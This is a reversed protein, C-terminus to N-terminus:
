PLKSINSFDPASTDLMVETEVGVEGVRGLATFTVWEDAVVDFTLQGGIVWRESNNPVPTPPLYAESLSRPQFLLVDSGLSPRSLLTARIVAMQDDRERIAKERSAPLPHGSEDNPSHLWFTVRMNYTTRYEDSAYDSKDTHRFESTNVPEVGLIPKSNTAMETRDFPSFSEIPRLDTAPLNWSNLARLRMKPYETKLFQSIAYRVGTAGRFQGRPDELSM